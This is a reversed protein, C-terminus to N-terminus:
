PAEICGAPVPNVVADCPHWLRGLQDPLLRTTPESGADVDGCANVAADAYSRFEGSSFVMGLDVVSAMAPNVEAWRVCNVTGGGPNCSVTHAM